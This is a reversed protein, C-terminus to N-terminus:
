RTAGIMVGVLTCPKDSRNEWSHLTGGQVMVDGAKLLVEGKELVCYVEGSIVVSYDTTATQHLAASTDVAPGGVTKMVEQWDGEGYASAPPFTAVMLVTGGADPELRPPQDGVKRLTGGPAPTEWLDAMMMGPLPEIINTPPGDSIVASKGSSDTGAVVCRLTTLM